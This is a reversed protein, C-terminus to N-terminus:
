RSRIKINASGAVCTSPQLSSATWSAFLLLTLSISILNNSRWCCSCDSSFEDHSPDKMLVTIPFILNDM